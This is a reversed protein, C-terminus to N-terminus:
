CPHGGCQDVGLPNQTGAAEASFPVQEVLRSDESISVVIVRCSSLETSDM